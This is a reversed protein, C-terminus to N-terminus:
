KFNHLASSIKNWLDDVNDTFVVKRDAHRVSHSVIDSMFGRVVEFAHHRNLLVLPKTGAGAKVWCRYMMAASNLSGPLGVFGQALSAVRFLRAEPGPLHEVPVGSLASPLKFEEGAVITVEGGASRASTVLPLAELEPEALCVIRAGRRALLTGVQSMIAARQADGPGRNSAFVALLPKTSVPEM